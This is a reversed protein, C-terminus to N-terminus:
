NPLQANAKVLDGLKIPDKDSVLNQVVTGCFNQRADVVRVVGIVKGGRRVEFPMGEKVGHQRGLNVVVCGLRPEVASVRGNMLDPAPEPPKLARDLLDGVVARTLAEDAQRLAADLVLKAEADPKKSYETAIQVLKVLAQSLTDRAQDSARLASVAQLLRQELATPSATSAGLAEMRDTLDKIQRKIVEAEASTIAVTKRAEELEMRLRGNEVALREALAAVSPDTGRRSESNTAPLSRDDGQAVAESPALCATAALLAFFLSKM